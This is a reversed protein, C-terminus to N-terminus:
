GSNTLRCAKGCVPILNRQAGPLVAGRRQHEEARAPARREIAPHVSGKCIATRTTAGPKIHDVETSLRYGCVRCLPDRRLARARVRPWDPPLRASRTGSDWGPV